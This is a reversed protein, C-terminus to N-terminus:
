RPIRMRRPRNPEVMNERKTEYVARNLFFFFFSNFMFNNQTEIKQVVKIFFM